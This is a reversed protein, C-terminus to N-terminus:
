YQKNGCSCKNYACRCKPRRLNDLRLALRCLCTDNCLLSGDEGVSPHLVFGLKLVALKLSAGCEYRVRRGLKHLLVFAITKRPSCWQIGVIQQEVAVPLEMVGGVPTLAFGLLLIEIGVIGVNARPVVDLHREVPLHRAIIHRYIIIHSEGELGIRGVDLSEVVVEVLVRYARIATCECQWLTPVLALAHEEVEVSRAAGDHNPDVALIGAVRLTGVGVGLKVNRRKNTTALVIHRYTYVAPAIARIKLTLVHPVKGSYVAVHIEHGSRLGVDGVM